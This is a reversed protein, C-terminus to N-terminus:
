PKVTPTGIEVHGHLLRTNLEAAESMDRGFYPAAQAVLTPLADDMELGQAETSIKTRWLLHQENRQAAAFDYASAIVYYLNGGEGQLIMGVLRDNKPNARFQNLTHSGMARAFAMAFRQGGVLSARQVLNVLQADDLPANGPEPQQPNGNADLLPSPVTSLEFENFYGYRCAIALTPPHGPAAPRYGTAALATVLQHALAPFTPPREGASADGAGSYGANLLVYYQPRAATALGVKRGEDTYETIVSFGINPNKQFARPLLNFARAVFGAGVVGAVAVTLRLRMEGPKHERASKGLGILM